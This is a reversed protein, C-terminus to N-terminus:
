YGTRRYRELEEAYRQEGGSVNVSTFVTPVVGSRLLAAITEAVIAWMLVASVVGSTPCARQSLGPFELVADGAVGGIDLAVDVVDRLHRGDPHQPPSVEAQANSQLAVTFVGRARALIAAEVVPSSRGSVSAIFLVDGRRVCAPDKAAEATVAHMAALGGARNILESGLLHGNDLLHVCGGHAIVDATRQAVSAIQQHQSEVVQKLIEFIAEVYRRAPTSPTLRSLSM